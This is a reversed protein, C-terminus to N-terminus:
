ANPKGEPFRRDWVEPSEKWNDFDIKTRNVVNPDKYMDRLLPWDHEFHCQEIPTHDKGAEFDVNIAEVPSLHITGGDRQLRYCFDHNAFGLHEFGCDFGGIDLVLQTSTLVNMCVVFHHPLHLEEATCRDKHKVPNKRRLKALRAANPFHKRAYWYELDMPKGKFDKGERYRLAIGDKPNNLGDYMGICQDLADPFYHGDDDGRIFLRGTAHPIGMQACRPSGGWDKICKIQPNDKLEDPPDYPGIFIIEFSHKTCSKKMAEYVGVWRQPRIAPIVISLEM